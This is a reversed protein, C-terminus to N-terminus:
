RLLVMKHVRDLGNEGQLRCLYVGSPLQDGNLSESYEGPSLVRDLLTAVKRGIIDYVCLSIRSEKNVAFLISVQSNFPDPFSGKLTISMDGITKLPIGTVISGVYEECGSLEVSSLKYFYCSGNEVDYDIYQYENLEPGTGRSPVILPNICTYYEERKLSRYLNFGVLDVESATVWSLIVCNEGGSATFDLLTVPLAFDGASEGRDYQAGASSVLIM